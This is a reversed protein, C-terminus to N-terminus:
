WSCRHHTIRLMSFLARSMSTKRPSPQRWSPTEASAEERAPHTSFGLERTSSIETVQLESVENSDVIVVTLLAFETGYVDRVESIVMSPSM